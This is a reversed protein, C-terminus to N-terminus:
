DLDKIWLDVEADSPMRWDGRPSLSVSGIKPGDPVCNRKFQNTFFRKLFDALWTKIQEPQYEDAFAEAALALIKRPAFSNRIMHFLFFDILSYPGVISETSHIIEGDKGLPLLEPSIETEVISRLIRGRNMSSLSENDAEDALYNVLFKVLTKPVSCNVNYMSMHDGNYTCFGIALESMDGTGLVFGRSMLLMTRIRAQVNEFVVDQSGAPLEGLKKKFLSLNDMPWGPVGTSTAWSCIEIGFPNHGIQQFTEFCLSEISITTKTVGLCNMLQNANDLTHNSTGFGPMTVADISTRPLGLMDCAKVAVMLALTSDLGGSVGIVFRGGRVRTMRKAIACVQIDFIDKCRSHLTDSNSPVFPYKSTM